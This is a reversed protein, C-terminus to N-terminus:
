KKYKNGKNRSFHAIVRGRMYAKSTEWVTGTKHTSGSNMLFFGDLEEEVLHNFDTDQFLFINPRWRNRKARNPGLVLGLQATDHDTSYTRNHVSVGGLGQQDFILRDKPSM